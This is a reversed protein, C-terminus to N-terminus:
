LEHTKRGAAIYELLRSRDHGAPMQDILREARALRGNIVFDTADPFLKFSELFRQRSIDRMATGATFTNYGDSKLVPEVVRRFEVSTAQASATKGKLLSSLERAKVIGAKTLAYRKTRGMARDGEGRLDRDTVLRGFQAKKADSLHVRVVDKDPYQPYSKWTFLGPFMEFAQIAVSELDSEGGLGYLALVVLFPKPLSLPDTM